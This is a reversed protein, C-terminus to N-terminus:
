LKLQLGVTYRRENIYRKDINDEWQIYEEQQEETLNTGQLSFTVADNLEYSISADIYHTPKQYRAFQYPDKNTIWMFKKSRYNHAIRAQIGDREYWLALNSQHESNDAMPTDDGYYDKSGSESPSYTYNATVGFGGWVGPLFDFGQQIGVEMGEISGGEGNAITTVPTLGTFEGSNLDYGRVVGDSDPIPLMETTRETYSEIDMYFLGLNFMGASSFYWEYSLDFNSSRWPDLYPNGSQNAATACFIDAGDDSKLGCGLTRNVTIGGALQDTNHSTMTKAYAFRLVMDETLDLKVNVAPLYDDYSRVTNLTAGIPSPAGLAGDIIYEVGSYTVTNGQGTETQNIDYETKIYRLGANASYNMDFFEGSFNTQFYLTTTEEELDYMNAPDPMQIITGYIEEHFALPNAMAEPDIFYLSGLGSAGQFDSIQTVKGELMPDTFAIPDIYSELTNPAQSASDKWHALFPDGHANTKAVLGKWRVSDVDRKGYRAGFDVSILDGYEYDFSGDIRFVNLSANQNQGDLNSSTLSYRNINTGFQEQTAVQNEDYVTMMPLAWNQMDGSYDIGVPIQTYSDEVVTGDPLTALEGSYGWPNVWSEVEGGAGKYTAGAQSGDNVYADVYSTQRNNTADGYVWRFNLTLDEGNDYNLELNTNLAEKEILHTESHVMTRRAHLIGSQFSNYTGEQVVPKGDVLIINEHATYGDEDVTMWGTEPQWAQSAIFGAQYQHETMDTYFMDSVISWKDNFRHEFSLNLGDREREIFRNSAQHGQFAYFIDNTTGNGNVDINDAVFNTSESANNGWENGASGVLYDALNVKDHSISISFGTDDNYNYGGFMSLKVDTDDGMSGEVGEAKGVFTYGEDLMLPRNTKLNITGSLGGTLTKAQPSKIVELGSVLTSPIDAFNPQLTTISGASLMQEGNLTTMVQSVGRINVSTGEGGSRSIQIGTIRQLSDAITADPLKGIDTSNITDVVNESYRKDNMSRIVSGRIGVVEIVEIEEENEQEAAMAAPSMLMLSSLIASSVLSLQFNKKNSSM